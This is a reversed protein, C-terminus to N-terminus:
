DHATDLKQSGQIRVGAFGGGVTQFNMLQGQFLRAGILQVKGEFAYVRLDYKYDVGEPSITGAQFYPQAITDTEWFSQFM